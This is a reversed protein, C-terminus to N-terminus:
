EQNWSLRIMSYETSFCIAFPCIAMTLSFFLEKILFKVKFVFKQGIGNIWNPGICDEIPLTVHSMQWTVRGSLHCNFYLTNYPCILIQRKSDVQKSDIDLIGWGDGRLRVFFIQHLQFIDPSLSRGTNSQPHFKYGM